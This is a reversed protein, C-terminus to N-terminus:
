ITKGACCLRQCPTELGQQIILNSLDKVTKQKNTDKIYDLIYGLNKDIWCRNGLILTGDSNIVYRKKNALQNIIGCGNKKYFNDNPISTYYKKIENITSLNPVFIAKKNCQCMEVYIKETDFEDLKIQSLNSSLIDYKESCKPHIYNFHNYVIPVNIMSNLESIQNINNPLICYSIKVNKNKNKLIQVAEIAKDFSGEVGRNFDHTEANAGDISIWITDCYKIIEKEWKNFLWANTTLEIKINNAKIKKLLIDLKNYLLPEIGIINVKHANIKKLITIWEKPPIISECILNQALSNDKNHQGIDCMRCKLNCKNTISIVALSMTDGRKKGTGM